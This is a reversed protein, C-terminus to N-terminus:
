KGTRISDVKRDQVQLDLDTENVPRWGFTDANREHQKNSTLWNVMMQLYSDCSKRKEKQRDSKICWSWNCDGGFIEKQVTKSRDFCKVIWSSGKMEAKCKTVRVDIVALRNSCENLLLLSKKQKNEFENTQNTGKKSKTIM